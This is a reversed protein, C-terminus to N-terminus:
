IYGPIVQSPMSFEAQGRTSRMTEDSQGYDSFRFKFFNQFLYYSVWSENVSVLCYQIFLVSHILGIKYLNSM